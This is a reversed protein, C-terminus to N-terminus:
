HAKLLMDQLRKACSLHMVPNDSRDYIAVPQGELYSYGCEGCPGSAAANLVAYPRWRWEKQGRNFRMYVGGRSGRANLVRTLTRVLTGLKVALATGDHWEGDAMLRMARVTLTEAAGSVRDSGELAM